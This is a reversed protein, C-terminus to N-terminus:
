ACVHRASAIVARPDPTARHNLSVKTSVTEDDSDDEDAPCVHSSAFSRALSTPLAIVRTDIMNYTAHNLRHVGTRPWSLTAFPGVMAGAAQQSADIM